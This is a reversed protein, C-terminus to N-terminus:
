RFYYAQTTSAAGACYWATTEKRFFLSGFTKKGTNTLKLIDLLEDIRTKPLGLAFTRVKINEYATLNEYLPPNEILAGINKLDSRRWLHGDFEITGSSPSLMGTILKLNTSKGARNPGLLGYVSNRRINLSVNNVAKQGKFNKCLHNTRLIM